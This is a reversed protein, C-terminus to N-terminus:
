LAYAMDCIPIVRKFQCVVIEAVDGGDGLVSM